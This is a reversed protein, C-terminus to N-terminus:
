ALLRQRAHAVNVGQVRVVKEPSAAGSEVTVDRTRVGLAAALLGRLARNAKGGEPPA